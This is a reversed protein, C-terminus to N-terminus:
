KINLQTLLKKLEVKNKISDTFIINGNGNKMKMKMEYAIRQYKYKKKKMETLLNMM